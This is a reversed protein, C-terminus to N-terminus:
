KRKKVANPCVYGKVLKPEHPQSKLLKAIHIAAIPQTKM